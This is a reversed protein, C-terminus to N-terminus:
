ATALGAITLAVYGEVADVGAPVGTASGVEVELDDEIAFGKQDGLKVEVIAEALGDVLVVGVVAIAARGVGEIWFVSNEQATLWRARYELM